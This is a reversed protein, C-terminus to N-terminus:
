KCRFFLWRAVSDRGKPIGPILTIVALIIATIRQQATFLLRHGFDIFDDVKDEVFSTQKASSGTAIFRLPYHKM